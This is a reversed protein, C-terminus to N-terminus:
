NEGSFGARREQAEQARPMPGTAEPEQGRAVNSSRQLADKYTVEGETVEVAEGGGEVDRVVVVRWLGDPALRGAFM